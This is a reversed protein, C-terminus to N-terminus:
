RVLKKEALESKPVTGLNATRKPYAYKIAPFCTRKKPIGAKKIPKRQLAM